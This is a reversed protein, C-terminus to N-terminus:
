RACAISFQFKLISAYLQKPMLPVDNM